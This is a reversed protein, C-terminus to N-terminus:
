EYKVLQYIYYAYGGRGSDLRYKEEIKLNNSEFVKKVSDEGHRVLGTDGKLVQKLNVLIRRTYIEVKKSLPYDSVKPIVNVQCIVCGSSVRGIEKIAKKFIEFNFLNLIRMSIVLDMSNSSFSINTIDGKRLECDLGFKEAKKRAEKLMDESVDLGIVEFNLRSYHKFFRGTGVPVDLITEAASNQLINNVIEDEKKWLYKQSREQDYEKAAQGTYNNKLKNLRM